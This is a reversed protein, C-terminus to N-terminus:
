FRLSFYSNFPMSNLLVSPSIEVMLLSFSAALFSLYILSFTWSLYNCNCYMSARTNLRDAKWYLSLSSSRAAVLLYIDTSSSTIFFFISCPYIRESTNSSSFRLSSFAPISFYTSSNCSTALLFDKPAYCSLEICVSSHKKASCALAM